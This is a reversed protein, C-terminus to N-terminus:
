RMFNLTYVYLRRLALFTVYIFSTPQTLAVASVLRPGQQM